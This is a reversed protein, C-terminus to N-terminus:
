RKAGVYDQPMPAANELISTYVTEVSSARRGRGFREEVRNRGEKGYAARLKENKLLGIFADALLEPSGPPVIRATMGGEVVEALGNHDAVVCPLGLAMAELVARCSGESGPTMLTFIDFAALVSVLEDEIYGPFLVKETLSLDSAHHRLKSLFGGKGVVVLRANPIDAAVRRFAEFLELLGRDPALRSVIGIVPVDLDIGLIKRGRARCEATPPRFRNLDVGGPVIHLREAPVGAGDRLAGAIYQSVAIIADTVYYLYRYAPGMKAARPHHVSRVLRVPRRAMSAALHALWHDATLHAHVVDAEVRNILSALDRVARWVAWPKLSRTPELGPIRPVGAKAAEEELREGGGCVFHLSHGREALDATLFLAPEAAGTWWSSSIVQVVSMPRM